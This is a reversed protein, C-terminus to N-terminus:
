TSVLYALGGRPYAEALRAVLAEIIWYGLQVICSEEIFYFMIFNLQMCVLSQITNIGLVEKPQNIHDKTFWTDWYELVLLYCPSSSTGQIRSMHHTNVTWSSSLEAAM